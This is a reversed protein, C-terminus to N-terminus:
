RYLISSEMESRILKLKNEDFLEKRFNDQVNENAVIIIRKSLNIQKLYLRMEECVGIASCTKGTGLEHFLLLSNYPTEFSMFNKVFNQHPALEFPANM